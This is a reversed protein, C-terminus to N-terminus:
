SEAGQGVAAREADELSSLLGNVPVSHLDFRLEEPTLGMALGLVQTIYLIPVESLGAGQEYLEAQAWELNHHCLPCSVVLAQIDREVAARLIAGSSQLVADPESAILYAGCCETRYPFPVLEAGTTRLIDEMISPNEPDDIAVSDQPRLLLCGYYSALRLGNLKRVAEEALRELGISSRLVEAIHLVRVATDYHVPEPEDALYDNLKDKVEADTQLIHNTRKLVNFCGACATVVESSHESALALSRTASVIQMHNDLSLPYVGGCCTWRELEVLRTGLREFVKKISEEFNLSQGKM